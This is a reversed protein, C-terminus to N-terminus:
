ITSLSYKLKAKQVAEPGSSGGVPKRQQSLSFTLSFDASGQLLPLIKM